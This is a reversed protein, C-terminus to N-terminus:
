KIMDPTITYIVSDYNDNEILPIYSVVIEKWGTKAEFTIYGSISKGPEVDGGLTIFNDISKAAVAITYSDAALTEKGGDVSVYFDSIDSINVTEDTNNIVEVEIAFIDSSYNYVDNPERQGLAVIDKAVIECEGASAPENVKGISTVANKRAVAESDEPAVYSNSSDDYYVVENDSSSDDNSCGSFSAAIAFAALCSLIYKLNKM